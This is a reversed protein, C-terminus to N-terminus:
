LSLEFGSDRLVVPLFALSVAETMFEEQIIPCAHVSGLPATLLAREYIQVTCKLGATPRRAPPTPVLLFSPFVTLQGGVRSQAHLFDFPM